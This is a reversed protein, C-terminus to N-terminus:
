NQIRRVPPLQHIQQDSALGDGFQFGLGVPQGAQLDAPAHHAVELQQSDAGERREVAEHALGVV